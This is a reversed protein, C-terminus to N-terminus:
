AVIVETVWKTQQVGPRNPGILRVPFGHDPALPEGDVLLALITDRDALQGRNVPSTRYRGRAEASVVTASRDSSAGAMAVLDRLPVGTWQRTASWGEVCAIPLTATRMPLRGLDDLTLELPTSVAGDVRLRYAAADIAGVGAETATQNVPFGQVGRDPRRPALLALHRLPYVTQGITVVTLTASAAGVWALFHRRDTTGTRATADLPRPPARLAQRTVALKAGIHVILAGMTIWAAWFHAAPFFFSWPYWLDINAVGSVLMFLAGGVLPVLSLRELAHPLNRVVPTQLLRPYVSWLKAFLVPIAALGTAVHLGQTVRYLGAPRPFWVFWSPPHQILHSLLGTAFCITFSIGLVLGLWAATRDGHRPDKMQRDRWQEIRKPPAITM